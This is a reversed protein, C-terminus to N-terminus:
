YKGRIFRIKERDLSAFSSTKLVACTFIDVLLLRVFRDDDHLSNKVNWTKLKDVVPRRLIIGAHNYERNNLEQLLFSQFYDHVLNRM